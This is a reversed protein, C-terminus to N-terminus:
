SAEPLLNALDEVEKRLSSVQAPTLDEYSVFIAGTNRPQSKSVKENALFGYEGLEAYLRRFRREIESVDRGEDELLPKAGQVAAQAGEVGAAVDVLDGNAYLEEKGEVTSSAIKELQRRAAAAVAAPRLTIRKLKRQLERTDALLKRGVPAAAATAKAGEDWAAKEIRHFGGLPTGRGGGAHGDIRRDLSPLLSEAVPEVRSYPVRAIFYLSEAHPVWGTGIPGTLNSVDKVLRTANRELYARYHATARDQAAESSGGGGCSALSLALLCAVAAPGAFRAVRAAM